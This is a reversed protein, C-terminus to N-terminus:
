FVPCVQKGTVPDTLPTAEISQWAMKEEDIVEHHDAEPDAALATGESTILNTTLTLATVESGRSSIEPIGTFTRSRRM